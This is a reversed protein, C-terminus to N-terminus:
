FARRAMLLISTAPKAGATHGPSFQYLLSADISFSGSDAWRYALEMDIERGSPALSLVSRTFGLAGSTYNRSTALNLTTQGAELRLPQSLAFGILDREALVGRKVLLVSFESLRLMSTGSFLSGEVGDVFTAGHLYQGSLSIGRGLAISGKIEAFLTEAGSGLALAGGSLAGLVMNRESIVGGTLDLRAPGVQQSIAVWAGLASGDQLAASRALGRVPRVRSSAMGFSLARDRDMRHRLALSTSTGTGAVLNSSSFPRSLFNLNQAPNFDSGPGRLGSRGRSLSLSTADSIGLSFAVDPSAVRRTTRVAMPLADIIPQIQQGPDHAAIRLASFRTPRASLAVFGRRYEIQSLLNSTAPTTSGLGSRYDIFYSRQFGDLMMVQSLPAMNLFADGFAPSSQMGTMDLPTLLTAGSASLSAIMQNGLPQIAAGIDLLGHGFIADVGAAGLDLATMLLIEGVERGSLNPFLEFLLAAAGAVHPASFSTGFITGTVGGGARTSIVGSPAVLFVSQAFGARDSFGFMQQNRDVAGVMLIGNQIAPDLAINSVILQPDAMSDNGAAFVVLLGANVARTLAEALLIQHAADPTDPDTFGLSVNVVNAGVAIAHDLAEIFLLTQTNNDDGPRLDPRACANSGAAAGCVRLALIDAEFAVGHIDVDNKAAAIIGTVSTGHGTSDIVAGGEIFNRSEPLVRGAFESHNVDLGTDAIGVIVGAGTLGAEYAPIPNIEGLGVNLQFEATDFNEAPPPPPPAPPPSGPMQQNGGCASLALLPLVLALLGLRPRTPM